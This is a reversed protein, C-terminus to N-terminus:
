SHDQLGVHALNTEAVSKHQVAFHEPRSFAAFHTSTTARIAEFQRSPHGEERGTIIASKRFVDAITIEPTTQARHQAKQQLSAIRLALMADSQAFKKAHQYCSIARETEGQTEHLLGIEALRVARSEERSVTRQQLNGTLGCGNLLGTLLVGSLLMARAPLCCTSMM